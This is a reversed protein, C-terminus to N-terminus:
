LGLQSKIAASIVSDLISRAGTKEWVGPAYKRAREWRRREEDEDLDASVLTQLQEHVALEDAPDLDEADLLNELEYIRGERSVWPRPAGCGDCSNLRSSPSASRPSVRSTM